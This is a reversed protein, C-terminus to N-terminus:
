GKRALPIWLATSSNAWLQPFLSFLSFATFCVLVTLITSWHYFASVDCGHFGFLMFGDNFKDCNHFGSLKGNCFTIVIVSIVATFVLCSVM